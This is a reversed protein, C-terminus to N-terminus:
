IPQQATAATPFEFLRVELTLAGEGAPIVAALLCQLNLKM